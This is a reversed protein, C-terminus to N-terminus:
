PLTGALAGSVQVVLVNKAIRGSLAIRTTRVQLLCPTGQKCVRLVSGDTLGLARLQARSEADLEADHLRATSGVPLDALAVLVTDGAAFPARAAHECAANCLLGDLDDVAERRIVAPAPTSKSPRM